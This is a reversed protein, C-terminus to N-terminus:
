AGGKGGELMRLFEEETLIKIGLEKAKQLKSGPDTGCVVYDTKKSVSSATKGGREIVLAQARERTMSALTGTFVFTKSAFAEDKKQVEVKHSMTVGAEKLREILRRNQPRSFYDRISRAVIPGIGEVKTLEEESAEMLAEMSGFHNALDRAGTEGVHRIGLAFIVNPLPRSKSREIAELLNRASKEAMRELGLLDDLTLYYLDSADKVLGKEVLQDALKEGLHEIDMARRSAFHLLHEKLQAPCDAAICRRAVEGEERVVPSGCVPCTDPMLFPRQTGDRREPLVGVIEPIVDGARQVLCYDGIMIGKRAIEDENHLTARRVTVGGVKVPELVAVPTLTGTRGVQVVIDLIRTVEQRPPFKFAIAWRPSRSVEGLERQLAFSDVKVVAGDAEFPLTDRISLMDKYVKIVEEIGVVRRSLDSVKFGFARLVQLLDWQSEIELGECVGMSYAYFDLPRSATISSDLQRVSGAAANRPNAFPPEGKAIREKNLEEFKAIPFIVEGRVEFLKPIPPAKDGVPRLRLPISRITKLNATVDEGTFGDGRTSGAVLIGDEYVLEASLGDFKPEVVYVIEEDRGLFRKLRAEFERVENENMANQLSLMPVRHRIQGFAESPPAGVRQTPSDPTILDPFAAELEQLRRFLRDYEADTIEPQDLVYYLYDHHSILRRLEEIERLAQERDMTM